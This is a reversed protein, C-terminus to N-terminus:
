MVSWKVDCGAVHRYFEGRRGVIVAVVVVVTCGIM